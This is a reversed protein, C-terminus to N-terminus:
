SAGGDAWLREAVALLDLGHVRTFGAHGLVHVAEPGSRHHNPCLPVVRQHSRTIRKMGDSHVHHVEAPAQCVLCGMAAVNAM